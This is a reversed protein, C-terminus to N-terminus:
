PGARRTRKAKESPVGCGEGWKSPIDWLSCIVNDPSSPVAFVRLNSSSILVWGLFSPATPAGGGRTRM